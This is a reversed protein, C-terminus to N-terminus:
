ITTLGYRCRLATKTNSDACAASCLMGSYFIDLKFNPGLCSISTHFCIQFIKGETKSLKQFKFLRVRQKQSNEEAAEFSHGRREGLEAGLSHLNCGGERRRRRRRRKMRRRTKIMVQIEMQRVKKNLEKVTLQALTNDPIYPLNQGDSGKSMLKGM